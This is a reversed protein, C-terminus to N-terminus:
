LYSSAIIQVFCQLFDQPLPNSGYIGSVQIHKSPNHRTLKLNKYLSGLKYLNKNTKTKTVPKDTEPNRYFLFEFKHM